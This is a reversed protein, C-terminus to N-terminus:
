NEVKVSCLLWGLWATVRVETLSGYNSWLETLHDLVVQNYTANTIGVQGPSLTGTRVESNQVNLFNNVVVSYYFGHGVGYAKASNVFSKPVDLGHLPSDATTYNYGVKRDSDRTPFTVKSPWSAFGCNHKVVMTAHKAGLATISDLWQNTNILTPDFLSPSPVLSPDSNCGDINLWTAVDFHILAGIERDQFALQEKTPLAIKSGDIPSIRYKPTYPSSSSRSGVFAAKVNALSCLGAILALSIM